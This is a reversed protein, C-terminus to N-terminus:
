QLPNPYIQVLNINRHNSTDELKNKLINGLEFYKIKRIRNTTMNEISCPGWDNEIIFRYKMGNHYFPETCEKVCPSGMSKMTGFKMVKIFKKVQWDKATWWQKPLNGEILVILGETFLYSSM